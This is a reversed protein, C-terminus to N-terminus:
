LFSMDIRPLKTQDIDNTQKNVGKKNTSQDPAYIEYFTLFKKM